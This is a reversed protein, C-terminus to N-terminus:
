KKCLPSSLWAHTSLLWLDVWTDKEVKNKSVLDRWSGTTRWRKQITKSTLRLSGM